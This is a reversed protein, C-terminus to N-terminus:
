GHAENLQANIIAPDLATIGIRKVADRVRASDDLMVMSRPLFRSLQECKLAADDAGEKEIPRSLIVRALLGNLRLYEYDASQMLRATCIIVSQGLAIQARMISALPLLKDRFIREPTCNARWHALDLTGDPRTL